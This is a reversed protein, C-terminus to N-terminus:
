SWEADELVPERFTDPHSSDFVENAWMLTVLDETDSLNIINHTYGPLMYVAQIQDGSVEFEIIEDSDIQREQILGHGSVVVFIEWKSNHWHEGKKIGPKSINVSFQGGSVTKIIETFSGRNDTNMKLPVLVKDKPLYSLYTSYLKKTLSDVPIEPVILSKPQSHFDSLTRELDGLKIKHYKPIYCYKGSANPVIDIGSYDCHLEKGELADLMGNVLDDIYLLTIESEPDDM